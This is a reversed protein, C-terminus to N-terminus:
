DVGLLQGAEEATYIDKGQVPVRPGTPIGHKRRVNTVHYAKFSLGKPTKLRKRQLIRAIQM